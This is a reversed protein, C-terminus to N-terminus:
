AAFPVFANFGIGIISTIIYIIWPTVSNTTYLLITLVLIALITITTFFRIYFDYNPKHGATM